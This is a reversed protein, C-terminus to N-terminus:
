IQGSPSWHKKNELIGTISKTLYNKDNCSTMHDPEALGTYKLKKSNPIENTSLYVTARVLCGGNLPCPSWQGPIDQFTRSKQSQGPFDHFTRSKKM